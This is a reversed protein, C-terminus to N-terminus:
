AAGVDVAARRLAPDQRLRYKEIRQTATQPLSEVFAVYRPAKFPALRERVWAAIEQAPVQAGPRLVIATLVEEEGMESPVGIAACEAVAPHSGIVRDLEAGSINEGRRRIIDKRRAVFHLYGDADQRVIDGTLFWGDRFAAATADPQCWYGQMITPTRVALEGEEGTAANGGLDNLIRLAPAPIAPDPHPTIRGMSGLRREGVFPNGIVGPIETMGYCEILDAVGFGQTFQEALGADLPAIFAKRLHHGPIFEARDRRTLIRAASAMLNVETAGTEAALKWFGSASFRRALVCAGGCSFAGGLSYFLANIHFMPLVCLLREGPQLHMRGVFGEATLVVGRQGHMVGKPFGTTGSTYIILCTDGPAGVAPPSAGEPAAAILRALAPHAAGPAAENLLLWPRQSLGAIAAEAVELLGPAAVLGVIGADGFVYAAESPGYDPNAPVLIVGLRACAFLLVATSPHNTSLVGLRDGPRLGRAALVTACRGVEAAFEAYSWTRGEFVLCPEDPLAEVRSALFDALTFDHARFRRLVELPPMM